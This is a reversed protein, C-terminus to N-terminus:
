TLPAHMKLDRRQVRLEGLENAQQIRPVYAVHERGSVRRTTYCQILGPGVPIGDGRDAVAGAIAVHQAVVRQVRRVSPSYERLRVGALPPRPGEPTRLVHCVPEGACPLLGTGM